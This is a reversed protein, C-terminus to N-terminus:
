GGTKVDAIRSIIRQQIRWGQPTRVYEDDSRSIVLPTLAANAGAQKNFKYVNFFAVGKAHNRDVVQIRQNSVQHLWGDNPAWTATRSRWYEKIEAPGQMRHGLVEWVGTPAFVTPMHEYDATDLYYAYQESLDECTQRIAAEAVESLRADSAKPPSASSPGALCGLAAGAAALAAGLRRLRTSAM